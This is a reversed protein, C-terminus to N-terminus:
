RRPRMGGRWVTPCALSLSRSLYELMETKSITGAVIPLYKLVKRSYAPAVLPSGFKTASPVLRLNKSFKQFRVSPQRVLISLDYHWWITSIGCSLVLFANFLGNEIQSLVKSNGEAFCAPLCIRKFTVLTSTSPYGM